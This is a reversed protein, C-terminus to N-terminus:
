AGGFDRSVRSRTVLHLVPFRGWVGAEALRKRRPWDDEFGSVQLEPEGARFVTIM